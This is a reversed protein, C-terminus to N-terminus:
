SMIGRSTQPSAALRVLCRAPLLSKHRRQYPPPARFDQQFSFHDFSGCDLISDYNFHGVYHLPLGVALAVVPVIVDIIWAWWLGVSPNAAYEKRSRGDHGVVSKRQEVPHKQSVVASRALGWASEGKELSQRLARGIQPVARNVINMDVQDGEDRMLKIPKLVIQDIHQECRDFCEFIGRKPLMPIPTEVLALLM